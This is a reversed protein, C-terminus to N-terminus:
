KERKRLNDLNFKATVAEKNSQEVTDYIEKRLINVSNPAQFGIKVQDGEVSTIVIEIDNGIMISQGVKRNLVLM